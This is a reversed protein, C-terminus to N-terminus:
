ESLGISEIAKPVRILIDTAIMGASGVEVAALDGALGHLYVSMTSAEAVSYGLALFGGIMGSLVDGTGATAMGSNGTPNIFVKRDKKNKGTAVITGAGKLVVTANTLELLDEVSEVRSEQVSKTTRGLLRAMEGPHPTLVVKDGAVKKFEKLRSAIANLGDADVVLPIDKDKCAKTIALVFDGVAINVGCGPGIVVSNKGDLLKVADDISEVGFTQGKLPVTMVETTCQEMLTGISEPVALTSLGTGCRLVAISALKGAGGKGTSGAFVLCHGFSGKHSNAHRNLVFGGLFEVDILNFKSDLKEVLSSPMGIPVTKLTGVFDRGPYTFHGVKPVEMTITMTAKVVSGMVKGTSGDLGSPVDISVIPKKLKNIKDIVKKYIGTVPSNIGTGLMADVILRSHMLDIAIAKFDSDKSLKKFYGGMASWIEANKFADGKLPKSALSYVKVKYGYNSLHRAVVYGDGGNNGSGTFVSISGKHKSGDLFESKIVDASGKGANEMLVIGKIGYDKIARRDLASMTKSDVLKM